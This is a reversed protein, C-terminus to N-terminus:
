LRRRTSSQSGGSSGGSGTMSFRLAEGIAFSAMIEGQDGGIASGALVGGLGHGIGGLASRGVGTGLGYIVGPMAASSATDTVSDVTPVDPM